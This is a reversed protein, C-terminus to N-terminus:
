NPIQKEIEEAIQQRPDAWTSPKMVKGDEHHRPMGDAWLKNMNSNHVIHFISEPSVGMEVLGGLALYIVDIMADVQDVLSKAQRFEGVEEDLWAARKQVRESSIEAPTLAIPIGFARHFQQVLEYSNHLPM